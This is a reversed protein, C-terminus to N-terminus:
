GQKRKEELLEQARHLKERKDEITATVNHEEPAYHGMMKCILDVCKLQIRPDEHNLLKVLVMQVAAKSLGAKEMWEKVKVEFKKLNQSGIKKFNEPNGCKYGASIASEKGNFFTKRNDIDLFYGLWLEAKTAM